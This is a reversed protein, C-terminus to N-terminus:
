LKLTAYHRIDNVNSYDYQNIETTSVILVKGDVAIVDHAGGDITNVQNLGGQHDLEYVITSSNLNTVFLLDGDVSLGQPASMSITEVLEPSSLSHVDYVRLEDIEIWGGCPDGSPAQSSITVYAIDEQAVVPDCVGIQTGGWEIHQTSSQLEPIGNENITFIHMDFESGIFLVNETEYLNEITEGLEQRDIENPNEPDSIDITVLEADTVAYIFDGIVKMTNYKGSIASDQTADYEVVENCSFLFLACVFLGLVQKM